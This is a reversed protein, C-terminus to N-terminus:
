FYVSGKAGGLGHEGNMAGGHCVKEEHLRAGDEDLNYRKPEVPWSFGVITLWCLLEAKLIHFVFQCLMLTGEGFLIIAMVRNQHIRQNDCAFSPRLGLLDIKLFLIHPQFYSSKTFHQSSSVRM